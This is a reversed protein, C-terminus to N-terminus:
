MSCERWEYEIALTNDMSSVLISGLMVNQESYRKITTKIDIVANGGCESFILEEESFTQPFRFAETLWNDEDNSWSHNLEAKSKQGSMFYQSSVSAGSGKPSFIFGALEVRSLAVAYEPPVDVTIQVNCSANKIGYVQGDGFLGFSDFMVSMNRHDNSIVSGVTGEMCGSGDYSINEIIVGTYKPPVPNGDDGLASNIFTTFLLSNILVLNFISKAFKM